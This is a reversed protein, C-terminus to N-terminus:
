PVHTVLSPIRHDYQLRTTTDRHTHRESTCDWDWDWCHSRLLQVLQTAAPLNVNCVPEEFHVSQVVPLILLFGATRTCPSHFCPRLGIDFPGSSCTEFTPLIETRAGELQATAGAFRVLHTLDVYVVDKHSRLNVNCTSLHREHKHYAVLKLDQFNLDATASQAFQLFKNAPLTDHPAAAAPRAAAPAPGPRARLRGHPAACRDQAPEPGRGRAPACSGTSQTKNSPPTAPAAAAPSRRM